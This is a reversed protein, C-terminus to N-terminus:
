TLLRAVKHIATAVQRVDDESYFENLSIRVMERVLLETNPCLGPGYEIDREPRFPPYGFPFHSDGYTKQQRIADYMYIPQPVYGAAAPIGEASLARAFRDRKAPDVRFIFHWYAGAGPAYAPPLVGPADRILQCLLDGLATRRDTIGDLKELQALAVAAQLETVRYNPAVFLHDRDAVDGGERPWAKDSFLLARRGLADDNTITIGGDGCGIHKHQNLSFCGLHGMTGVKRGKHRANFAQACDEIVYLDYREALKLIADMDCPYGMLHVPLLVKTYETIRRELDAPDMCYTARDLDAFIPVLNQMVIPVITGMDTIPSTIVEGGPNLDLAGLAIHIAATGSTSMIVHKVGMYDAWRQEFTKVVTGSNRNLQQSRIVETLLAIERDGFREGSVRLPPNCVPTGGELALQEAVGIRESHETVV